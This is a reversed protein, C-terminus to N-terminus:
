GTKFKTGLRYRNGPHYLKAYSVLVGNCWTKRELLLIAEDDAVELLDRIKLSGIIAEVQHEAETVPAISSLYESPTKASFDQNVYDPAVSLNVWRYELQIPRDQQFHLLKSHGCLENEKLNLKKAIGSDVVQKDCFILQAEHEFGKSQIETAINRIELLSSQQKEEAVFSGKGKIRILTGEMLLEQLARRATMRSVKCLDVLENESPVREGTNWYGQGIGELIYNKIQLYRTQNKNLTMKM